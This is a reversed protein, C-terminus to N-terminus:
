EDINEYLQALLALRQKELESESLGQDDSIKPNDGTFHLLILYM